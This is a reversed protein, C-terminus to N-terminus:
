YVPTPDLSKVQGGHGGVFEGVDCLDGGYGPLCLCRFGEKEELCTGGNHCPSPICDGSLPSFHPPPAHPHATCVSSELPGWSLCRGSWSPLLEAHLQGNIWGVGWNQAGKKGRVEWNRVPELEWWHSGQAALLLLGLFLLLVPSDTILGPNRGTDPQRVRRGWGERQAGGLHQHATLM